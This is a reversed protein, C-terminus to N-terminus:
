PTWGEVDAGKKLLEGLQVHVNIPGHSRVTSLTVVSAASSISGEVVYVRKSDSKYISFCERGGPSVGRYRVLRFVPIQDESASPVAFMANALRAYRDEERWHESNKDLLVLRPKGDVHDFSAFAGVRMGSAPVRSSSTGLSGTNAASIATSDVGRGDVGGIEVVSDVLWGNSAVALQLRNLDINGIDTASTIKNQRTIADPLITNIFPIDVTRVHEETLTSLGKSTQAASKFYADPDDSFNELRKQDRYSYNDPTRGRSEIVVYAIGDARLQRTIGETHYSGIFVLPVKKACNRGAADIFRLMTENRKLANRCKQVEAAYAAREKELADAHARMEPSSKSIESAIDGLAGFGAKLRELHKILQTARLNTSDARQLAATMEVAELVMGRAAAEESDTSAQGKPAAIEALANLAARIESPEVFLESSEGLYRNDDIAVGHIQPKPSRLLQFALPTDILFRRLMSNVIWKRQPESFRRLYDGLGGDSIAREQRAAQLTPDLGAPKEPFAGEVLYEFSVNSNAAFLAALGSKLRFRGDIDQDPDHLLVVFGNTGASEPYDPSVRMDEYFASSLHLLGGPYVCAAQGAAAFTMKGFRAAGQEYVTLETLGNQLGFEIFRKWASDGYTAIRELKRRIWKEPTTDIEVEIKTREDLEYEAIEHSRGFRILPLGPKVKRLEARAARAENATIPTTVDKLIESNNAGIHVVLSSDAGHRLQDVLPAIAGFEHREAVASSGSQGAAPALAVVTACWVTFGVLRYKVKEEVLGAFAGSQM